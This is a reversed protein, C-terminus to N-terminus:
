SIFRKIIPKLIKLIKEYEKDDYSNYVLIVKKERFHDFMALAAMPNHGVDITVNPAIKQCRGYLKLDNLLKVDVEYGM